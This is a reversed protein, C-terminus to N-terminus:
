SLRDLQDQFWLRSPRLLNILFCVVLRNYPALRHLMCYKLYLVVEYWNMRSCVLIYQCIRSPLFMNCLPTVHVDKLEKLLSLLAEYLQLYGAQAHFCLICM